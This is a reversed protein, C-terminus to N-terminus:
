NNGIQMLVNGIASGSACLDHADRIRLLPYVAALRPHLWGDRLGEAIGSLAAARRQPPMRMPAIFEVRGGKTALDTYPLIPDGSSGVCAITGSPALVVGALVAHAALDSDIVRAIGDTETEDLIRRALDPASSDVVAHAGAETAAMATAPTDATAIVHAGGQHALRIAAQGFPTAGELVLVSHGMVGGDGFVADFAPLATQGMCAASEFPVGPNLTVAQADPVACLEAATGRTANFVWVHEGVRRADVGAGVAVIVGAGDRHPINRDTLLASATGSREAVDARTVACIHVQVLVEGADPVPDPQWGVTLVSSPGAESFWVCRM